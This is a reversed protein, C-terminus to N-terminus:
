RSRPLGRASHCPALFATALRLQCLAPIERRRTALNAHAKNM